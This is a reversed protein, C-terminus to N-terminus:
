CVLEQNNTMSFIQANMRLRAIHKDQQGEFRASDVRYCGCSKVAGIRLHIGTLIKTKGCECKCKWLANKHKDSGHRELVILRNFTKGILNKVRLIGNQKAFCKRCKTSDGSVLYSKKVREV